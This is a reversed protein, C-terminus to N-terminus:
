NNSNEEFYMYLSLYLEYSPNPKSGSLMNYDVLIFLLDAESFIVDYAELGAILNILYKGEGKKTILLLEKNGRQDFAEYVHLYEVYRLMEVVKNM